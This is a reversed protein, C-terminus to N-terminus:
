HTSPRTELIMPHKLLDSQIDSYFSPTFDEHNRSSRASFNAGQSSAPKKAKGSLQVGWTLNENQTHIEILFLKEKKHFPSPGQSKKKKKCHFTKLHMIGKPSM